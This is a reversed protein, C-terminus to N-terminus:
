FTLSTILYDDLQYLKFCLRSKPSNVDGPFLYQRKVVFHSILDNWLLGTLSIESILVMFTHWTDTKNDKTKQVVNELLM